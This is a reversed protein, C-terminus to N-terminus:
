AVFVIKALGQRKPQYFGDGWEIQQFCKTSTNQLANIDLLQTEMLHQPNNIRLNLYFSDLLIQVYRLHKHYNLMSLRSIKYAYVFYGNLSLSSCTPPKGDM